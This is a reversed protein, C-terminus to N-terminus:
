WSCSCYGCASRRCWSSISRSSSESIIRSSPKRPGRPHGSSPRCSARCTRGSVEIGLKKLEGHIRPARWLPNAEPLTRILTRIQSSVPPRGTGGSRNSLQAWYQRFRQRQWRVLTDPRVICLAGRWEKWVRIVRDLVVSRGRGPASAEAQNTFPFSSASPSTRWSSRKIVKELSGFRRFLGLLFGLM